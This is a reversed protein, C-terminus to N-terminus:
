KLLQKNIYNRLNRKIWKHMLFHITIGVIAYFAAIVFFGTFNNGLIKGMFFALGLSLFLIFFAMLILFITNPILSSVVDSTKDASKLKFLELSIKVYEATKELLGEILNAPNEM